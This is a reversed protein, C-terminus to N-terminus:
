ATAAQWNVQGAWPSLAIWGIWGAGDNTRVKFELYYANPDNTGCYNGHIDVAHVAVASYPIINAGSVLSYWRGDTPERWEVVLQGAGNVDAFWPRGNVGFGVAM